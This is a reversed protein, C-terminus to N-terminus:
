RKYEAEIINGKTEIKTLKDFVIKKEQSTMVFFGYHSSMHRLRGKTNTQEQVFKLHTEIRNELLQNSFDVLNSLRSIIHERFNSDIEYGISNRGTSISAITTTGTGL